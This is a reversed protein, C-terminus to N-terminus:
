LINENGVVGESKYEFFEGITAVRCIKHRVYYQDLGESIGNEVQEILVRHNMNESKRFYDSSLQDSLKRLRRAREIKVANEVQNSMSAAVTHPRASFPFVHIRSAGIEKLIEYTQRFEEETEGPFGVIVDVSFAFLDDAKRLIKVCDIIDKSTYMRRMRKLTTDSGSQLSMHAHNCLKSDEFLDVLKRLSVPDISGLRLRFDGNVKLIEGILNHLDTGEDDYLAINIGTIVIEKVGNKVMLRTEETVIKSSKSRIKTGRFHPIACYACGWNCGNEISLFARTHNPIEKVSYNLDDELFYSSNLFEGNKDLFDLMRLKEGNGIVLDFGKIDRDHVACGTFIIQSNPNIKKLHRAIQLSKRSAEKTVACSNVIVIDADKANSNVHGNERFIEDIKASEYQNFKCGLTHIHYKM